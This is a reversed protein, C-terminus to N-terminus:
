KEEPLLDRYYAKIIPMDGRSTRIGLDGRAAGVRGVLGLSM